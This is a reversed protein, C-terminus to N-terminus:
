GHVERPNVVIPLHSCAASLCRSNAPWFYRELLPTCHIFSIDSGSRTPQSMVNPINHDRADDHDATNPVDANMAMEGFYSGPELISLAEETCPVNAIPLVIEADRLVDAQLPGRLHLLRCENYVCSAAESM